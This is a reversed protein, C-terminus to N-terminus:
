QEEHRIAVRLAELQEGQSEPSHSEPSDASTLPAIVSNILRAPLQVLACSSCVLPLLLIPLFKM